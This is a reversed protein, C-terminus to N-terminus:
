LLRRNKSVSASLCAFSYASRDSRALARPPFDPCCLTGCGSLTLVNKSILPSFTGCFIVAVESAFCYPHFRSTFAWSSKCFHVLQTFRAPQLSMYILPRTSSARYVSEPTQASPNLAVPPLCSDDCIFSLYKQKPLPSLIRSIPICSNIFFCNVMFSCWGDM